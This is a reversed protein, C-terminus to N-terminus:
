SMKYRDALDTDEDLIITVAEEYDIDNELSYIKARYGLEDAPSEFTKEDESYSRVDFNEDFDGVTAAFLKPYLLQGLEDLKDRDMKPHKFRLGKLKAAYEDGAEKEVYAREKHTMTKIRENTKKASEKMLLATLALAPDGQAEDLYKKCREVSVGLFEGQEFFGEIQEKKSAAM